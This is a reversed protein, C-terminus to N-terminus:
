LYVLLSILFFYSMRRVRSLIFNTVVSKVVLEAVGKGGCASNTLDGYEEPVCSCSIESAALSRSNIGSIKLSTESVIRYM